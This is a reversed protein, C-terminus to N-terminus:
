RRPRASTAKEQQERRQIDAIENWLRMQRLREASSMSDKAKLFDDPSPHSLFSRLQEVTLGGQQNRRERLRPVMETAVALPDEAGLFAASRSTLEELALDYLARTNQDLQEIMPFATVGLTARIQQEAQNHRRMLDSDAGSKRSRIKGLIDIADNANLTQGVQGLIQEETVTPITLSAAIRYSQLVQPDSPRGKPTLLEERFVRFAEPRLNTVNAELENITLSGQSMKVLLRQETAKQNDREQKELMTDIASQRALAVSRVEREDEPRIGLTKTLDVTTLVALPNEYAVQKARALTAGDLTANVIKEADDANYIGQTVMRAADDKYDRKITESEALTSSRVLADQTTRSRQIFGTRAEDVQLTSQFTREEQLTRLRHVGLRSKLHIQAEKSLGRGEAEALTEQEVQSVLENAAQFHTRSNPTKRLESVGEGMRGAAGLLLESTENADRLKQQLVEIEELQEGYRSLVEGTARLPRGADPVDPLSPTGIKQAPHPGAFAGQPIRPM